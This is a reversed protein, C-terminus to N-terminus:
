FPRIAKVFIKQYYEGLLNDEVVGRSTSSHIFMVQDKGKVTTVMGVHSIKSGGKREAFFVLDGPSVDNLRVDKGYSSQETSTRPLKVDISAFSTCLLGSCDMGKSTSGGYRYPTGLFSRATKIVQTAQGSAAKTSAPSTTKSKAPAPSAKSKRFAAERASTTSRHNARKNGSKSKKRVYAKGTTASKSKSASKSSRCSTEAM